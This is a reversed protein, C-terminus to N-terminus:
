KNTKGIVLSVIFISFLLSAGFLFGADALTDFKPIVIDLSAAFNSVEGNQPLFVYLTSVFVTSLFSDVIALRYLLASKMWFPAGFLTMIDMREKHELLWIRMQKFMLLVSIILIFILFVFSISKLLVLMKYIKTHTKAFTEVRTVLKSEMLRDKIKEVEKSDPFVELKLSYFKPLALKLLSINQSSISGKLRDLVIKSSIEEVSKIGGIRSKVVEEELSKPAVVIISYDQTLRQAYDSVIKQTLFAFQLSFLLVFLPFIVSLHNKLSKM